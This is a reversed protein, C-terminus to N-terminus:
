LPPSDGSRRRAGFVPIRTEDIEWTLQQRSIISERSQLYAEATYLGVKDLLTTVGIERLDSEKILDARMTTASIQYLLWQQLVDPEHKRLHQAV